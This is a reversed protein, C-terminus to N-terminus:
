CWAMGPRIKCAAKRKEQWTQERKQVPKKAVTSKTTTKTRRIKLLVSKPCVRARKQKVADVVEPSIDKFPLKLKSYRKFQALARRGKGGWQGDISGPNCGVRTLESQLLITLQYPDLEPTATFTYNSGPQLSAVKQRKRNKLNKLKATAVVSFNGKPYRALYDEFVAPISSSQISKWLSLEMANPNFQQQKSLAAIRLKSEALREKEAAVRVREQALREREAAARARETAAKASATRAEQRKNEATIRDELTFRAYDAYVSKPHRKIFAKLVKTSQTNQITAWEKEAPDIAPRAVPIPEAKKPTFFFDGRLSSEEWPTQKNGTEIEVSVRVRKFMQEVSLGPVQMAEVLASTYPSNDSNGDSAVQGPAAAFAVLSGSAANLKALGRSVSRLKGKFPNNRCADLIVLNLKNGSTEMQSLVDSARISEVNLDAEDEVEANLPILYNEGRAQVGHGAYYFLGVADKGSARLRRGFKKVARRMGRFDVDSASIVEFGLKSLTQAMLRSDNSPNALAQMQTYRSNGIVLAVRKQAISATASSALIM